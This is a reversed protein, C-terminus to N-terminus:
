CTQLWYCSWDNSNTQPGCGHQPYSRRRSRNVVSAGPPPMLSPSSKSWVNCPHKPLKSIGRDTASRQLKANEEWAVSSPGGGSGKFSGQSATKQRCCAVLICVVCTCITAATRSGVQSYDPWLFGERICTQDKTSTKQSPKTYSKNTVLTKSPNLKRSFNRLLRSM